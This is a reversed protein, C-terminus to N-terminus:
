IQRVNRLLDEFEELTAWRLARVVLSRWVRVGLFTGLALGLMADVINVASLAQVQSYNLWPLVDPFCREKIPISLLGRVGGHRLAVAVPAIWAGLFIGATSFGSLMAIGVIRVAALNKSLM